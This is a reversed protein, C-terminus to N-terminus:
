VAGNGRRQAILALIRQMQVDDTSCEGVPCVRDSNMGHYDTGGTILDFGEGVLAQALVKANKM